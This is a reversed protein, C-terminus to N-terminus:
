HNGHKERAIQANSKRVTIYYEAGQVTVWLDAAGVGGGTDAPTGDDRVCKLIEALEDRLSVEHDINKEM